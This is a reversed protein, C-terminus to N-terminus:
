GHLVALAIRRWAQKQADDLQAWEGPVDEGMVEFHHMRWAREAALEIDPAPIYSAPGSVSLIEVKGNKQAERFREILEQVEEQTMERESM